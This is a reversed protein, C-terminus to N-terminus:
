HPKPEFTLVIETLERALTGIRGIVNANAKGSTPSKHNVRPPDTQNCLGAAISPLTSFDIPM